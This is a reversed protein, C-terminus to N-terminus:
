TNDNDVAAGVSFPLSNNWSLVLKTHRFVRCAMLTSLMLNPPSALSRYMPSVGPASLMVSVIINSVVTIRGAFYKAINMSITM